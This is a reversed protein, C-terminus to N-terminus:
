DSGSAGSESIVLTTRSGGLEIAVIKRSGNRESVILNTTGFRRDATEAKVHAGVEVKASRILAKEGDVTLTYDGATLEASGFQAAEMLRVSYHKPGAAALGALASVVLFVKKM